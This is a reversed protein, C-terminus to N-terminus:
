GSETAKMYGQAVSIRRLCDFWEIAASFGSESEQLFSHGFGYDSGGNTFANMHCSYGVEEAQCFRCTPSGNEQSRSNGDLLHDISRNPFFGVKHSNGVSQGRFVTLQQQRFKCFCGIFQV